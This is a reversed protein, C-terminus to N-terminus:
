GIILKNNKILIIKFEHTFKIFISYYIVNLWKYKVNIFFCM